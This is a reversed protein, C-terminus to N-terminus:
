EQCPRDLIVEAVPSTKAFKKLNDINMECTLKNRMRKRKKLKEKEGISGRRGSLGVSSRESLGISFIVSM